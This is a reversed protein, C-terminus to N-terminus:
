YHVAAELMALKREGTREPLYTDRRRSCIVEDDFYFEWSNCRPCRYKLLRDGPYGSQLQVEPTRHRAYAGLAIFGKCTSNKCLVGYWYWRQASDNVM